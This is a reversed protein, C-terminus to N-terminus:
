RCRSRSVERPTSPTVRLTGHASAVAATIAARLRDATASESRVEISVEVEDALWRELITTSRRGTADTVAYAVGLVVVGLAMLRRRWALRPPALEAPGDDTAADQADVTVEAVTPAADVAPARLARVAFAALGGFALVAVVDLGVIESRWVPLLVSRRPDAPDVHAPVPEHRALRAQLDDATQQQFSGMSDGNHPTARSGTYSQGGVVYTYTAVARASGRRAGTELTASTLTAPVTPWAQMARVESVLSITRVALAICLVGACLALASLAITRAPLSARAAM